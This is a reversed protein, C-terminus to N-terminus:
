RLQLLVDCAFLLKGSKERVLTCNAYMELYEVHTTVTDSSYIFSIETATSHLAPGFLSQLSQQM